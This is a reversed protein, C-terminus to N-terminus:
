KYKFGIKNSTKNECDEDEYEDYYYEPEGDYQFGIVNTNEEEPLIKNIEAQVKTASLTVKNELVQMGLDLLRLIYPYVTILIGTILISVIIEQM